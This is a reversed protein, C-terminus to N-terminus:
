VRLTTAQAISSQSRSVCRSLHGDSIDAFKHRVQSRACLKLSQVPEQGSCAWVVGLASLGGNYGEPLVERM